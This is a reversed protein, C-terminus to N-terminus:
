LSARQGFRRDVSSEPQPRIGAVRMERSCGMKVTGTAIVTARQSLELDRTSGKGFSGRM